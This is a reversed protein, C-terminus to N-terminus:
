LLTFVMGCSTVTVMANQKEQMKTKGNLIQKRKAEIAIMQSM